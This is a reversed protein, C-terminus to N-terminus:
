HLVPMPFHHGTIEAQKYHFATEGTPALETPPSRPLNLGVALPLDVGWDQM